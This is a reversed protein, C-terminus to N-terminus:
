EECWFEFRGCEKTPSPPPPAPAPEELHTFYYAVVATIAAAVIPAFWKFFAKSWGSVIEWKTAKEKLAELIVTDVQKM